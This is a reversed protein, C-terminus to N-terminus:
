ELGARRMAELFFERQGPRMPLHEAIWALSVNPQARRLGVLSVRALERDGAM